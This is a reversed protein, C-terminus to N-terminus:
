TRVEATMLDKVQATPLEHYQADLLTKLCDRESLIGVLKGSADVVPMGSIQHKLLLGIADYASTDPQVTVLEKAMYDG